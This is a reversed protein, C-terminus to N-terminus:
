LKKQFLGYSRSKPLSVASRLSPNDERMLSACGLEYHEIGYKAMSYVMAGFLGSNRLDKHVGGTKGLLMRPKELLPYCQGYSVETEAIPSMSGQNLLAGYDPFSLFFGAIRDSEDFAIVSSKPCMKKSFGDGCVANFTARDISRYGFNEGFVQDVFGYLEDLHSLWSTSDVVEIRVKGQMDKQFKDYAPRMAKKIDSIKAINSYYRYRIEYGLSDLLEPYYEPNFPEGSFCSQDFADLRVRNNHYTSFNIPGYVVLAGQEKAWGEFEEFLSKNIGIDNTTEWFGFYAVKVGDIQHQPDYFGALRARTGDIGLWISNNKLYPNDQSFQGRIISESEPIWYKLDKYVDRSVQFFETPLPNSGDWQGGKNQIPIKM